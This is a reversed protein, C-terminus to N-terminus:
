KSFLQKQLYYSDLMDILFCSLKCHIFENDFKIVGEKNEISDESDMSEMTGMAEHSITLNSDVISSWLFIFHTRSSIKETKWHRVMLAAIIERM